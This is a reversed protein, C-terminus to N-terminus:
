RKRHVTARSGAGLKMPAGLIGSAGLVRRYIQIAAANPASGEGAENSSNLFDAVTKQM